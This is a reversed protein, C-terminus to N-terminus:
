VNLSKTPKVRVTQCYFHAHASLLKKSIKKYSYDQLADFQEQFRVPVFM